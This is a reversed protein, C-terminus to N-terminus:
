YKNETTQNGTALNPGMVSNLKLHNQQLSM